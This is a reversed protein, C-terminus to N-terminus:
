HQFFPPGWGQVVYRSKLLTAQVQCHCERVDPLRQWLARMLITDTMSLMVKGVGPRWMLTRPM